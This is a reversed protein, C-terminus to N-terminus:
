NVLKTVVEHNEFVRGPFKVHLLEMKHGMVVKNLRKGKLNECLISEIHGGEGVVVGCMGILYKEVDNFRARVVDRLFSLNAGKQSIILAIFGKEPNTIPLVFIAATRVVGCYTYMHAKTLENRVRRTDDLAVMDCAMADWYKWIKGIVDLVDAELEHRRAKFGYHFRMVHLCRMLEYDGRHNATKLPVIRLKGEEFLFFPHSRNQNAARPYISMILAQYLVLPILDEVIKAKPLASLKSFFAPLNKQFWLTRVENDNTRLVEELVRIEEDTYTRVQLEYGLEIIYLIVSTYSKRIEIEHEMGFVQDYRETTYKYEESGIYEEIRSVPMYWKLISFVKMRKRLSVYGLIIKTPCYDEGQIKDQLIKENYDDLKLEQIIEGFRASVPQKQNSLIQGRFCPVTDIIHDLPLLWTDEETVEKDATKRVWPDDTGRSTIAVRRICFESCYLTSKIRKEYYQPLVLFGRDDIYADKTFQFNELGSREEMIQGIGDKEQWGNNIVRQLFASYKAGDINHVITDDDDEEAGEYKSYPYGEESTTEKELDMKKIEWKYITDGAELRLGYYNYRAMFYQKRDCVRWCTSRDTYRERISWRFDKRLTYYVSGLKEQGYLYIGRLVSHAENDWITRELSDCTIIILAAALTPGAGKNESRINQIEQTVNKLYRNLNGELRSDMADSNSPETYGSWRGKAKCLRIIDRTYEDTPHQKWKAAIDDLAITEASPAIGERTKVDAGREGNFLAVKELFLDSPTGARIVKQHAVNQVRSTFIKEGRRLVGGLALQRDHANVGVEGIINLQINQALDYCTGAMIHLDGHLVRNYAIDSRTHDCQDKEDCFVVVSLTEVFKPHMLIDLQQLQIRIRRNTYDVGTKIKQNGLDTLMLTEYDKESVWCDGEKERTTNRRDRTKKMDYRRIGYNIASPVTIRYDASGERTLLEIAPAQILEVTEANVLSTIKTWDKNGAQKTNLALLYDYAYVNNFGEEGHFVIIDLSEM